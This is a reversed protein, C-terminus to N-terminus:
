GCPNGHAPRHGKAQAEQQTMYEGNKTNGYWRTNPCHYIGSNTNVWVSANPNGGSVVQQIPRVGPNGPDSAPKSVTPKEVTDSSSAEVTSKSSEISKDTVLLTITAVLGGILMLGALLVVLAVFKLKAFLPKRGKMAYM